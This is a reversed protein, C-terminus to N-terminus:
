RRVAEQVAPLLDEYNFGEQAKQAPAAVQKNLWNRLSQGEGQRVLPYHSDGPYRFETLNEPDDKFKAQFGVAPHQRTGGARGIAVWIGGPIAM